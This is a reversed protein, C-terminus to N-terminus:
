SWARVAQWAAFPDLDEMCRHRELICEEIGCWRGGDELRCPLNKQFLVPHLTEEYPHWEIPDEPGFLTLTRRGLAVALHKPGSDNGVHGKVAAMVIMLKRLSLGALHLLQGKGGGQRPRLGLARCHDLFQGGLREESEGPGVVLAPILDEREALLEALKAFHRTPWRKTPRSAGLTFIIVKSPDVAMSSWFELGLRKEEERLFLRPPPLPLSLEPFWKRLFFGDWELANPHKGYAQETQKNQQHSAKVKAGSFFQLPNWGPSSHLQFFYDFREKRLQALLGFAGSGYGFVKHIGPFEHWLPLYPSPVLVSIEARPHIQKLAAVTSTMLITDGLARRKGLLIRM